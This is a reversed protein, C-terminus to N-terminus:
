SGLKRRITSGLGLLGISLLMFTGPEPITSSVTSFQTQLGNSGGPCTSLGTVPSGNGGINFERNTATSCGAALSGATNNPIIVHVDMLLNGHSPDYLFPVGSFSLVGSVSGSFFLANDPGINNAYTTLSSVGVSTTSLSIAYTGTISTLVSFPFFTIQRIQMPGLFSAATYVQQYEGSYAPFDFPFANGATNTGITITAASALSCLAGLALLLAFTSPLLRRNANRNM